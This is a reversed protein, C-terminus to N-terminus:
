VAVRRPLERPFWFSTRLNLLALSSSVPEFGVGFLLFLITTDFSGLNLPDERVEKVVVGVEVKLRKCCPQEVRVVDFITKGAHYDVLLYEDGVVM